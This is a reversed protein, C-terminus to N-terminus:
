GHRAVRDKRQREVNSFKPLCALEEDIYHLEAAWVEYNNLAPLSFVTVVPVSGLGSAGVLRAAKRIQLLGGKTQSYHYFGDKFVCTPDGGSEIVPHLFLEGLVTSQPCACSFRPKPKM